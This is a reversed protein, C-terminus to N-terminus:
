PCSCRVDCASMQMKTPCVAIIKGFLGAFKAATVLNKLVWDEGRTTSIIREGERPRRERYESYEQDARLRDAEQM